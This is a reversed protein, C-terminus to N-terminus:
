YAILNIFKKGSQPSEFDNPVTVSNISLARSLNMANHSFATQQLNYGLITNSQDSFNVMAMSVLPLVIDDDLPTLGSFNHSKGISFQAGGAFQLILFPAGGIVLYEVTGSLVDKLLLSAAASNKVVLYEINFIGDSLDSLMMQRSNDASTVYIPYSNIDSITIKKLGKIQEESLADIYALVTYTKLTSIRNINTLASNISSQTELGAELSWKNMKSIRYNTLCIYLIMIAFEVAIVVIYTISVIDEWYYQM